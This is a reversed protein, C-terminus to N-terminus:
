ATTALQSSLLGRKVVLVAFGHMLILKVSNRRNERSLFSFLVIQIFFVEFRASSLFKFLIVLSNHSEFNFNIM